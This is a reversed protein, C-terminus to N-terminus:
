TIETNCQEFREKFRTIGTTYIRTGDTYVIAKEWVNNSSQKITGRTDIVLYERNNGLHKYSNHLIDEDM